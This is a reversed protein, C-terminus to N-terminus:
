RLVTLKRLIVGDATEIRTLYAGSALRHGSGDRGDWWLRAPGPPLPADGTRVLERVVRGSLDLIWLSIKGGSPAELRFECGERMPNPAILLQGLVAVGGAGVDTTGCGVPWAGVLGCDPNSEPTCPSGTQLGFDHHGPDCFAPDAHINGNVGAQGAICGTWDGGANGIVDCCSVSVTAENECNVAAGAVSGALISNHLAVTVQSAYICGGRVGSNGHFTCGSVTVSGGYDCGLGGGYADSGVIFNDTFTCRVLSLTASGAMVGAGIGAYSCTLRNNGFWCGTVEAQPCNRCSLGGGSQYGLNGDFVCDSFVPSSYMGLVGGGTGWWGENDRFSCRTFTPSGAHWVFVGGGNQATCNRVVVGILSPSALNTIAIGGGCSEVSLPDAGTVYGNAVTVAQLLSNAGEAMEFIFGRHPDSASGQCDIICLEPNGSQSRITIPKGHYRVDHNGAGTFTGDALEITSGWAVSGVAVQITPFDGTGDARVLYTTASAASVAGMCLTWLFLSFLTRNM